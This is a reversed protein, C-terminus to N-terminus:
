RCGSGGCGRDTNSRGSCLAVSSHDASVIAESNTDDATTHNAVSVEVHDVFELLGIVQKRHGDGVAPHCARFCPFLFYTGISGVAFVLSKEVAFFNVIDDDCGRFMPVPGHGDIM